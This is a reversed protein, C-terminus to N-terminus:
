FLSLKVYKKPNLRIDETLKAMEAAAKQLNAAAESANVYLADDKTLKGLSGEGREIRGMVAEMSSSSRTLGNMVGDMRETLADIRKVTRELEPGSTAKELGESSKRLNRSLVILEKRQEGVTARLDQLLQRADGSGKEVNEVTEDSLLKEVRGVATQAAKTLDDVEEFIGEGISGPLSDGWGLTKPSAGPVVDAVMGGLLGASKLELRSDSPIKYEGEIELRITVDDKNIFFQLIRGINVGRMQVPDGKRIGGANPVTTNVIYRGRFLAADTLTFLTILIAAAGAIVLLGVTLERRRGKSPPAPPLPKETSV